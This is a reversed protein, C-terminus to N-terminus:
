FPPNSRPPLQSVRELNEATLWQGDHWFFHRRQILTWGEASATWRAGRWAPWQPALAAAQAQSALWPALQEPAWIVDAAVGRYAEGRFRMSQVESVNRVGLLRVARAMCLRRESGWGELAPLPRYVQLPTGDETHALAEPEAAYLGVRVLADMWAVTANNSSQVHVLERDYPLGNAICVPEAGPGGGLALSQTVAQQLAEPSARSTWGHWGAPWGAWAIAAVGLALAAIALLGATWLRRRKPRSAAPPALTQADGLESLLTM